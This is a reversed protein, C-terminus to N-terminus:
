PRPASASPTRETVAPAAEGAPRREQMFMLLGMGEPRPVVDAPLSWGQVGRNPLVRVVNCAWAKGASLPEGTLEHLPIAAEIQWGTKESRVAVFWRPNWAADGWCDECLCGRQDIQLRFCTGYDRDLDLLIQVRDFDRLDEDRRRKTVPAVYAEAPHQCRLAIYLYEKDYAFWADTTCEKATDGIADKLRLPAAGQWCDDDFNGDLVPRRPTFRCSALPKPPPGNRNALWLEAAAADRWPGEAHDKVFRAYWEQATKFDGLNRRASQLGFQVAPDSAFVGGFAELRPEVKLCSEYWRRAEALDGLTTVQQTHKSELGQKDVTGGDPVRLMESQTVALFQGLEQRRRAESSSAYRILWRYADAALPHAPYRDVMVFYAERALLWQGNDAFRRAIAFAAQAGQDDSLNALTPGIQSLLRNPDTLGAVPTEALVQLNRRARIAKEIEPAADPLPPLQRRATGGAGLAIGQMLDRHGEAGQMNNAVLHYYTENYHAPADLLEGASTAVNNLTGELRVRAENLDLVVSALKGSHWRAYLKKVTWPKLGLQEIQEPFAKPDAARQFAERTADATLSELASDGGDTADDSLVVEPQWMRIALVLQRLMQEAADGGHRKNWAALLQHKDARDAHRPLPFQWLVEAAAGGAQRVAAALRQAESASALPAATPDIASFQLATTLYGDDGGVLAIADLPVGAARAHVCLVAARQGGQRQVKWSKGGDMTKLVTGLEGVAWGRKDDLFAIGNMPLNQGTMQPQWSAGQDASHFVVSGPRGAVWVHTGRCAVARFDLGALTEKPLKLDAFGWHVGGSDSSLLILGGQGVAAARKGNLQLGNVSRGSLTDVDSAGLVGNRLTALRSWTGALAGTSLDQFDAALWTPCRPGAVPKWTRGGDATLFVGTPYQESGDGAAIGNKDDFFRVRQLGPLGNVCLRQWKLGGDRTVLVTGVSGHATEERGVAWGTFPNLFYVSRLSARVGTPQREWTAGGDISHWVAGADGVAWGENEDVFQVAHLAADEPHRLDAGRAPLPLAAALALAALIPRM